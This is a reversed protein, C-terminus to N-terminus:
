TISERTAQCVNSDDDAETVLREALRCYLMWRRWVIGPDLNLDRIARRHDILVAIAAVLMVCRWSIVFITRRWFGSTQSRLFCCHFQLHQKEDSVLQGLLSKVQCHPLKAALLHYYCLGVVEAVLLVLVKLRLGLLRRCRVFARATWNDRILTGGLMRVCVALIEAHRNEERVFLRVANAYHADIGEIDSQMVQEVITGGGSEGLQFIALSQSLSAPLSAHITNAGAQAEPVARNARREFFASWGRWDVTEPQM